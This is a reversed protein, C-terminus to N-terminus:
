LSVQAKCGASARRLIPFNLQTMPKQQPVQPRQQPQEPTSCPPTAQKTVASLVAAAKYNSQVEEEGDCEDSWASDGGNKSPLACPRKSSRGELGSLEHRTRKRSGVWPQQQCFRQLPGCVTSQSLAQSPTHRPADSRNLNFCTGSFDESLTTHHIAEDVFEKQGTLVTGVDSESDM